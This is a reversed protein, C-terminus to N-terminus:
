SENEMLYKELEEPTGLGVMRDVLMPIINCNNEKLSYNFVPCTYFENNVRDDALIMQNANRKFMDASRWYYFGTTAWESIPDKEAVRSISGDGDLEAYSWKPDREPCHFVSILGDVEDSNVADRVADLSAWVTHQDCNSVFISDDSSLWDAVTLITCATGETLSDIEKILADPYWKLIEDSLNQEKRVIFIREDFDLGITREAHVFMPIGNVDIMPKHVTYGEEAFRSGLGAMPMILKLNMQNTGTNNNAVAM